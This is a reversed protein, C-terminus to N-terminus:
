PRIAVIPCNVLAARPDFIHTTVATALNSVKAFDANDYVGVQWLPSYGTQGPLTYAVNHTQQSAASEVKFGTGPGGNPETPNVNFTVLLPSTPVRGDATATIPAEDFNFYSVVKGRYWGQTLATPRGNLRLKATSGEPVVPCNVITSTTKMPYGADVIEKLSTIANAVYNSPVTVMVVQWFDNYTPDGPLVDVINLQGSVPMTEGQRVLVYIPAPATLQTDFNYYTIKRGDPGLGLTIFPGQDFDIAVNPGPLGNTATRVQLHGATASFRDVSVRPATTPDKAVFEPPSVSDNSDGCAVIGFLPLAAVLM